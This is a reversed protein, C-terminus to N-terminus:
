LHIRGVKRYEENKLFENNHRAIPAIESNTETTAAENSESWTFGAQSFSLSKRNGSVEMTEASLTAAPGNASGGPIGAVDTSTGVRQRTRPSILGVESECILKSTHIGAACHFPFNSCNPFPPNAPVMLRKENAASM